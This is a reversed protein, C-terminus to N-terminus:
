IADLGNGDIAAAETDSDDASSSLRKIIVVLKTSSVASLRLCGAAGRSGHDKETDYSAFVGICYVM